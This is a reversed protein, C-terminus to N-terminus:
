VAWRADRVQFADGLQVTEPYNAARIALSKNAIDPKTCLADEVDWGASLRHDLTNRHIGSIEAWESISHTKGRFTIRRNRSFNNNQVKYSAWRCNEPCYNGDNDIRDLTLGVEYGHSLAWDRFRKYDIWADCVSIGRGGYHSFRKNNRNYCRDKMNRWVKNLKTKSEGHTVM